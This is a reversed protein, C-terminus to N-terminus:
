RCQLGKTIQLHWAFHGDYWSSFTTRERFTSENEFHSLNQSHKKRRKWDTKVETSLVIYTSKWFMHMCLIEVYTCITYFKSCNQTKCLYNTYDVKSTAEKEASLQEDTENEFPEYLDDDTATETEEDNSGLNWAFLTHFHSLWIGLHHTSKLELNLTVM